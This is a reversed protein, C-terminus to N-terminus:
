DNFYNIKVTKEDFFEGDSITINFNMGDTGELEEGDQFYEDEAILYYATSLLFEVVDIPSKQSHLIEIEERGFTTLGKTFASIRTADDASTMLMVWVLNEIPLIGEKMVQANTIYQSKTYYVDTTLIGTVNRQVACSCVVKVFLQALEVLNEFDTEETMITLTSRYPEQQKREEETLMYNMAKGLGLINKPVIDTEIEISITNGNETVFLENKGRNKNYEDNFDVEINWEKKLEDAVKQFFTERNQIRKSLTVYALFNGEDDFIDNFEESFEDSLENKLALMKELEEVMLDTAEDFEEDNAVMEDFYEDEFIEYLQKLRKEFSASIQGENILKDLLNKAKAKKDEEEPQYLKLIKDSM